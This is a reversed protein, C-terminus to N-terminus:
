LTDRKSLHKLPKGIGWLSASFTDAEHSKEGARQCIGYGVALSKQAYRCVERMTPM